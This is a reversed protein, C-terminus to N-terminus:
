RAATDRLRAWSAEQGPGDFAARIAATFQEVTMALSGTIVEVLNNTGSFIGDQYDQTVNRLHQILVPTAGQVALAEAFRPIDIPEYRVPIGIVYRNRRRGALAGTRPRSQTEISESSSIAQPSRHEAQACLTLTVACAERTGLAAAAGM